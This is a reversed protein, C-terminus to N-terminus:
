ADVLLTVTRAKTRAVYDDVTWVESGDPDVIIAGAKLVVWHGAPDMEGGLMGLIGSHMALYGRKPALPQLAVGFGDAIIQMDLITLGRRRVKAQDIIDSALLDRAFAAVDGYPRALIMALCAVGCDWTKRQNVVKVGRRKM